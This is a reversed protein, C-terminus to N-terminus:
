QATTNGYSNANTPNTVATSKAGMKESNLADTRAEGEIEKGKADMYNGVASGAAAGIVGGAVQGALKHGSKDGYAGLAVAGLTGSVLPGLTSANLGMQSTSCGSQFCSALIVIGTLVTKHNKTM